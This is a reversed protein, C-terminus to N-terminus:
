NGAISLHNLTTVIQIAVTSYGSPSARTMHELEYGFKLLQFRNARYTIATEYVAVSPDASARETGIRAAVFWRANLVRRLEAYGGTARYTPILSYDFTFHQLEGYVNWPGHGWQLDFGLATGPLNRPHAEVVMDFQPQRDLYPGRYASAGVRFGQVITYGAGAAWNGYQDRAFISRPNAPSSNVFQTRMDLKGLTADVQAGTLGYLSVGTDYTGYTLPIDILPNVAPDYRPLFSGFATSLQGLRVVVSRNTWFKSYTLNLQLIDAKAGYGQTSFDSYYFPRTALQIAGSISWNSSIKWTPYLIASAGTVFGNGNRPADTLEDSYASVGSITARLDLGSNAEQAGAISTFLCCLGLGVKTM